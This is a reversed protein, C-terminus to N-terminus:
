ENNASAVLANVLSEEDDDDITVKREITPNKTDAMVKAFDTAQTPEATGHKADIDLKASELHKIAEDESLNSQILMDGLNTM